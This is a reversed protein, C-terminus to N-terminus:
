ASDDVKEGAKNQDDGKVATSAEGSEGTDYNVTLGEHIDKGKGGYVTPLGNAISPLHRALSSGSSLPHFKKITTESLFIKM